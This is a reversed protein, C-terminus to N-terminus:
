YFKAGSSDLTSIPLTQSAVLTCSLRGPNHPSSFTPISSVFIRGTVTGNPYNTSYNNWCLFGKCPMTGTMTSQVCFDVLPTMTSGEGLRTKLALPLILDRHTWCSGTSSWSKLGIPTTLAAPTLEWNLSFECSDWQM